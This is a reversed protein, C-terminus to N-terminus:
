VIGFQKRRAGSVLDDLERRSMSGNNVTNILDQRLLDLLHIALWVRERDNVEKAIRWRDMLQQEVRAFAAKLTENKLLESAM